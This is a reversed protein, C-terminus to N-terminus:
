HKNGTFKISKFKGVVLDKMDNAFVQVSNRKGSKVSDRGSSRKGHNSVDRKSDGNSFFPIATDGKKTPTNGIM